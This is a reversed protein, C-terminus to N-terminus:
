FDENARKHFVSNVERTICEDYPCPYINGFSNQLNILADSRERPLNEVKNAHIESLLLLAADQPVEQHNHLRDSSAIYDGRPQEDRETIKPERAQKAVQLNQNIELAEQVLRVVKRSVYRMNEWIEFATVKSDPDLNREIEEDIAQIEESTLAGEQETLIRGVLESLISIGQSETPPSTMEHTRAELPPTSSDNTPFGSGNRAEAQAENGFTDSKTPDFSVEPTVSHVSTTV